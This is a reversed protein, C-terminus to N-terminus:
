AVLQEPSPKKDAIICTGDTAGTTGKGELITEKKVQADDVSEVKGRGSSDSNAAAEQKKNLNDAIINYVQSFLGNQGKHLTMNAGVNEFNETSADDGTVGIVCGEYGADRMQKVTQVGDLDDGMEKDMTVVAFRQKEDRIKKLAEQGNKAVHINLKGKTEKVHMRRLTAAMMVIFQDDDDTVLVDATMETLTPEPAEEGDRIINVNPFESELDDLAAKGKAAIEEKTLLAKDAVVVEATEDDEEDVKLKKSQPQTSTSSTAEDTEVAASSDPESPATTQGSHKGTRAYELKEKEYRKRDERAMKIYPEREAASLGKWKEGLSHGIDTFAKQVDFHAGNDNKNRIKKYHEKFFFNWAYRAPKPALPDRVRRKKDKKKGPADIKGTQLITVNAGNANQIVDVPYMGMPAGNGGHAYIHQQQQQIGPHFAQMVGGPQQMQGMHVQVYQGNMIAPQGVQQPALFTPQGIMQQPHIPVFGGQPLQRFTPEMCTMQVRYQGPGKERLAQLLAPNPIWPQQQPMGQQGQGPQVYTVGQGQGAQQQQQGAGSSGAQQGPGMRIADGGWM